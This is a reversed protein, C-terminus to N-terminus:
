RISAVALAYSIKIASTNISIHRLVNFRSLHIEQDDILFSANNSNAAYFYEAVEATPCNINERDITIGLQQTPGVSFLIPFLDVIVSIIRIHRNFIM